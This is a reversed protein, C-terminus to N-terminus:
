KLAELKIVFHKGITIYAGDIFPLTGWSINKNRAWKKLEKQAEEGHKRSLMAWEDNQKDSLLSVKIIDYINELMRQNKTM